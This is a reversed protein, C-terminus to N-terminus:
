FSLCHITCLLPQRSDFHFCKPGDHGYLDLLKYVLVDETPISDGLGDYGIITCLKVIVFELLEIIVELDLLSLGIPLNFSHVLRNLM